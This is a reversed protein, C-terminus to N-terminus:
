VLSSACFVTPIRALQNVDSTVVTSFVFVVCVQQRLQVSAGPLLAPILVCVVRKAIEAFGHELVDLFYSLFLLSEHLVFQAQTALPRLPKVPLNVRSYEGLICIAIVTQVHM